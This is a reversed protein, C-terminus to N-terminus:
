LTRYFWVVTTFRANITHLTKTLCDKQHMAFHLMSPLACDSTLVLCFDLPFTFFIWIFFLLILSFGPIQFGGSNTLKSVNTLINVLHKLPFM